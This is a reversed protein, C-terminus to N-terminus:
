GPLYVSWYILNFLAFCSPFVIRSVFLIKRTKEQVSFVNEDQDKSQSSPVSEENTDSQRINVKNQKPKDIEANQEM